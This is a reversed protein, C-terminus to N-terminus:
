QFLYPQKLKSCDLIKIFIASHVRSLYLYLFQSRNRKMGEHQRTQQHCKFLYYSSHLGIALKYKVCWQNKSIRKTCKLLLYKYFHKHFDDVGHKLEECAVRSRHKNSSTDILLVAKTVKQKLVIRCIISINFNLPYQKTMKGRNLLINVDFLEASIM